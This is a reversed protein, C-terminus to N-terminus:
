SRFLKFFYNEHNAQVNDLMPSTQCSDELDKKHQNLAISNSLLPGLQFQLQQSSSPGIMGLRVASAVIGKLNIHCFSYRVDSLNVGLAKGIVTYIVVHHAYVDENRDGQKMHRHTNELMDICHMNVFQASDKCDIMIDLLAEGQCKSANGAVHNNLNADVFDNAQQIFRYYEDASGRVEEDHWIYNIIPVYMSTINEMSHLCFQKLAVVDKCLGLQYYSELGVSHAFGGSPFASDILIWLHQKSIEQQQQEKAIAVADHDDNNNNDSVVVQM